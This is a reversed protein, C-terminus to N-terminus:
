KGGDEIWAGTFVLEPHGTLKVDGEGDWEVSLTGGPLAVDVQDGVFGHLRAAVAIACAGSGCAMTEGAGREWVRAEVQKSNVLRVVEFNVRQPFLPHNEVVPGLRNLPFDLVPKTIFYVAHPNGMSVLNLLLKRNGAFVPYDLVPKTKDDVEEAKVLAPIEEPRFRPRGISVRVQKVKGGQKILEIKKVGAKTEVTVDSRSAEVIGEDIAYRGMCILGNGCVEAESGDSNIVRVKFDAKSSPQVVLVGDAGVGFRRDCMSKALKAWSHRSDEERVVVFDNGSSHMKTFEVTKDM